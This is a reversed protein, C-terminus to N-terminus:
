ESLSYKPLTDLYPITRTLINFYTVTRCHILIPTIKPLISTYTRPKQLTYLHLTPKQPQIEVSHSQKKKKSILSLTKLYPIIKRITNLYPTVNPLTTSLNKPKQLTYLYPSPNKCM